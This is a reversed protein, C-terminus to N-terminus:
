GPWAGGIDVEEGEVDIVDYREGRKWRIPKTRRRPPPSTAFLHVAARGVKRTIIANGTAGIGAGIGFPVVNGAALLSDRILLRTGLKAMLRSNFADLRSPGLQRLMKVGGRVGAVGALEDMTGKAGNSMALASLVWAKREAFDPASHGHAVGIAMILEALRSMTWAADMGATTLVAATGLGPSAAAGGSLAAVAALRRQARRILVDSLQEPTAGPQERRLREVDLVASRYRSEVIRDVLDSLEAVSYRRPVRPTRPM